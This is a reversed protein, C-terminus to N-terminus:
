KLVGRGAPSGHQAPCNNLPSEPGASRARMFVQQGGRLVRRAATVAHQTNEVQEGIRRVAVVKAERAALVAGAMSEAATEARLVKDSAARAM